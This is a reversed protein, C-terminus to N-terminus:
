GSRFTPQTHTAVTPSQWNVTTLQMAPVSSVRHTGYSSLRLPARTSSSSVALSIPAEVRHTGRGTVFPLRHGHLVSSPCCPSSWAAAAYIISTIM